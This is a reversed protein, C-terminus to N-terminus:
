KDTNEDCTEKCIPIKEINQQCFKHANLGMSSCITGRHVSQINKNCWDVVDDLYKECSNTFIFFTTVSRM